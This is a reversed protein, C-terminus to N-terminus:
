FPLNCQMLCSAQSGQPAFHCLRLCLGRCPFRSLSLCPAHPVSPPVSPPVSSLLACRRSAASTGSAKLVIPRRPQGGALCILAAAAVCRAALLLPSGAPTALWCCFEPYLRCCRHRAGPCFASFSAHPMRRPHRQCGHTARVRTVGRRAAAKGHPPRGEHGRQCLAALRAQAPQVSRKFWTPQNAQPWCTPLCPIPPLVAPLLPLNLLVPVSVVALQTIQLAAFWNRISRMAGDCSCHAVLARSACVQLSHRLCQVPHGQQTPRPAM